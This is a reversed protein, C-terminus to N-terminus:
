GVDLQGGGSSFWIAVRDRVRALGSGPLADHPREARRGVPGDIDLEPVQAVEGRDSLFKM